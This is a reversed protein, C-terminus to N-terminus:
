RCALSDSTMMSQFEIEFFVLRSSTKWTVLASFIASIQVLFSDLNDSRPIPEVQCDPGEHNLSGLYEQGQVLLKVLVHIGSLSVLSGIFITRLMLRIEFSDDLEITWNTMDSYQVNESAAQLRALVM